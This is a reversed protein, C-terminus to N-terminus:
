TSPASSRTAAPPATSPRVTKDRHPINGMDQAYAALEPQKATLQNAITPVYKPFVCGEGSLQGYKTWKDFNEGGFQIFPAFLGCDQELEYNGRSAPSRPPTTTSATTASATTTRSCRARRPLTKTLYPAYKHGPSGFTYAFSENELNIVWVHKIPPPKYAAGAVPALILLGLAIAAIAALRLAGLRRPLHSM